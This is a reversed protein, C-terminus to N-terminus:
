TELPGVDARDRERLRIGWVLGSSTSVQRRSSTALAYRIHYTETRSIPPGEHQLPADIEPLSPVSHVDLPTGPLMYRRVTCISRACLLNM